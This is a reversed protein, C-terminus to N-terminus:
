VSVLGETPRSPVPTVGPNKDNPAAFIRCGPHSIIRERSTGRALRLREFLVIEPQLLERLKHLQAAPASTRVKSRNARTPALQLGVQAGLAAAAGYMDETLFWANCRVINEYAEDPDFTRSFTYVQRLLHEKPLNEVFETFNAGLWPGEKVFARDGSAKQSLLMHYHSLVRRVPDRMCTITFTGPPLTLEHAPIHSSAFFYHGEEILRKEGAVFVKDGHAMRHRHAAWLQDWLVQGDGRPAGAAATLFMQCLSTGATKRIHHFYIRRHGSPLRYNALRSFRRHDLFDRLKRLM